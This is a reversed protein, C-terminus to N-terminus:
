AIRHPTPTRKFRLSVMWAYRHNTELAKGVRWRAGHPAATGDWLDGDKFVKISEVTAGAGTLRWSLFPHQDLVYTNVPSLLQVDPSAFSGRAGGFPSMALESSAQAILAEPPGQLGLSTALPTDISQHLGQRHILFMGALIVIVVFSCAFSWAYAPRKWVAGAQLRAAEQAAQLDIPHNYKDVPRALTERMESFEQLKATCRPCTALHAEVDQREEVGLSGDFFDLLYENAVHLTAVAQARMDRQLREVLREKLQAPKTIMVRDFPVHILVNRPAELLLRVRWGLLPRKHKVGNKLGIHQSTNDIYFPFLEAKQPDIKKPPYLCGDFWERLQAEAPDEYKLTKGCSKFAISVLYAAGHQIPKAPNGDRDKREGRREQRFTNAAEALADVRVSDAMFQSSNWYTSAAKKEVFEIERTFVTPAVGFKRAVVRCVLRDATGRLRLLKDLIKEAQRENREQRYNRFDRDIQDAIASGM